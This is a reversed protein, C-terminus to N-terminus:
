WVLSCDDGEWVDAAQMMLVPAGGSVCGAVGGIVRAVASQLQQGVTGGTKELEYMWRVFGNMRRKQDVDYGIKRGM